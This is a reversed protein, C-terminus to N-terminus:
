GGAVEFNYITDVIINLHSLSSSFTKPRALFLDKFIMVVCFFWKKDHFVYFDANWYIM